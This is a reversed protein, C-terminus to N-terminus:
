SGLVNSRTQPIEGKVICISYMFVDNPSKNQLFYHFCIQDCFLHGSDVSIELFYMQVAQDTSFCPRSGILSPCKGVSTMVQYNSSFTQVSFGSSFLLGSRLM